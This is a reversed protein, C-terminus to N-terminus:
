GKEHNKYHMRSLALLDGVFCYMNFHLIPFTQWQNDNEILREVDLEFSHVFLNAEDQSGHQVQKM